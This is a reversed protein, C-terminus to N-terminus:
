IYSKTYSGGGVANTYSNVDNQLPRSSNMMDGMLHNGTTHNLSGDYTSGLYAETGLSYGSNTYNALTPNTTTNSYSPYTTDFVRSTSGTTTTYPDIKQGYTGLDSSTHDVHLIDNVSKLVNGGAQQQTTSSMMSPRTRSLIGSPTIGATTSYIEPNDRLRDLRTLEDQLCGTEEVQQRRRAIEMKIDNRKEHKFFQAEDLADEDDSAFPSPHWSRSYHGSLSSQARRSALPSNRVGMDFNQSSLSDLVAM